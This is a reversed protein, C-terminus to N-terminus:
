WLSKKNVIKLLMLKGKNTSGPAVRNKKNHHKTMQLSVVLYGLGDSVWVVIGGCKSLKEREHLLTDRTIITFRRNLTYKDFRLILTLIIRLFKSEYVRVKNPYGNHRLLKKCCKGRNEYYLMQVMAAPNPPLTASVTSVPAPLPAPAPSRRRRRLPLCLCCTGSRRMGSTEHENMAEM